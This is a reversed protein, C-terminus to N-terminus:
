YSTWIREAAAEVFSLRAINDRYVGPWLQTSVIGEPNDSGGGGGGSGSGGGGERLQYQIEPTLLAAAAAAAAV